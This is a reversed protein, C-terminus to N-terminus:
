NLGIVIFQQLTITNSASSASCTVNFNFYNTITTDLTAFTGPSAGGGWIPDIKNATGFSSLIGQGQGTATAATTGITRVFFHGNFEWVASAAGSTTTLAASGLAIVSTISDLVGLRLTFTYTPTATSSLVGRAIVEIGRGVGDNANRWFDLPLHARLGMGAQDNIAIETTFTGKATGATPNVYILETNTGTLYSM